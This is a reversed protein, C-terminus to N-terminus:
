PQSVRRHIAVVSWRTLREAEAADRGSARPSRPAADAGVIDADDAAIRLACGSAPDMGTAESLPFLQHLDANSDEGCSSPAVLALLSSSSLIQLDNQPRAEADTAPSVDALVDVVIGGSPAQRGDRCGLFLRRFLRADGCRLTM